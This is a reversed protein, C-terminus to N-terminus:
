YIFYIHTSCLVYEICRFFIDFLGIVSIATPNKRGIRVTFIDAKINKQNTQTPKTSAPKISLLTLIVVYFLLPNLNVRQNGDINKLSTIPM